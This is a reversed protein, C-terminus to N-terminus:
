RATPKARPIFLPSIFRRWALAFGTWVLFMSALSALGALTQGVVGYVEGTHLFRIYRRLSQTPTAMEDPGQIKLVDGTERSYTITQQKAAQKGNGTDIVIDVSQAKDSTPILIAITNWNGEVQRAKEYLSQFSVLQDAPLTSDKASGGKAWMGKGQGRGQPAELGASAFLLDNAWQYSMIVGSFIVAVLPIVAWVSFVHHWNFDRAKSTPMKVFFIKQRLFPWKWKRPLWLYAGSLIIFLFALNSAKVMDSGISGFGISLNRHLSEMLQFFDETPNNEGEIFAGSYPDILKAEHRGARVILPRSPDAYFDLTATQGPFVPKAITVLEDASLMEAQEVSPAVTPDFWSKIQMEYTLFVGTTALVFIVLGTVLGVTLHSWFIVRRFSM